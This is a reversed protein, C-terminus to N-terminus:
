RTSAPTPTPATSRCSAAAFLRHAAQLYLRNMAVVRGSRARDAAAGDRSVLAMAPALSDAAAEFDALVSPQPGAGPPRAQLYQRELSEENLVAHAAVDYHDSLRSAAFAHRASAAEARAGWLAYGGMTVLVLVLGGVALRSLWGASRAAPVATSRLAPRTARDAVADDTM